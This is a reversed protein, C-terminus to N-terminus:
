NSHCWNTSRFAYGVLPTSSVCGDCRTRLRGDEDAEAQTTAAAASILSGERRPARPRTLSAVRRKDLGRACFAGWGDSSSALMIHTSAPTAQTGPAAAQFLLLEGDGVGVAVSVILAEGEARRSVDGHRPATLLSRAAATARSTAAAHSPKQVAHWRRREHMCEQRRGKCRRKSLVSSRVAIALPRGSHSISGCCCYAM